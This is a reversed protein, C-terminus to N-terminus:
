RSDNQKFVITFNKLDYHGKLIKYNEFLDGHNRRDNEIIAVKKGVKRGPPQPYRYFM